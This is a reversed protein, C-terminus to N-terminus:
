PVPGALATAAAFVGVALAGVGTAAHWRPALTVLLLSVVGALSLAGLWAPIGREWGQPLAFLWASAALLAWCAWRLALRRGASRRLAGVRTRASGAHYFGVCAALLLATAAVASV